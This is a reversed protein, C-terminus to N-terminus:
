EPLPSLLLPAGSRRLLKPLERQTWLLRRMHGARGHEPSLNAPIALSGPRDGGCPDLLPVLAPDLAAALERAVVGIGTPRQGLYSGNFLALPMVSSM